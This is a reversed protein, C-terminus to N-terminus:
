NHGDDFATSEKFVISCGADTLDVWDVDAIEWMDGTFCIEVLEMDVFAEQVLGWDVEFEAIDQEYEGEINLELVQLVPFQEHGLPLCQVFDLAAANGLILSRLRPLSGIVGIWLSDMGTTVFACAFEHLNDLPLIDFSGWLLGAIDGNDASLKVRRQFGRTTLSIYSEMLPQRYPLYVKLSHPPFEGLSQVISRLLPRAHQLHYVQCFIDSAAVPRWSKFLQVLLACRPEVASVRSLSPLNLPFIEADATWDDFINHLVLQSLSPMSRLIDLFDEISIRRYPQSIHLFVLTKPFFPTSWFFECGTLHLRELPPYGNIFLNYNLVCSFIRLVKLHKAEFGQLTGIIRHQDSRKVVLSRTRHIVRSVLSVLSPSLSTFFLSLPVQTSHSLCAEVASIHTIDIVSWLRSDQFAISRWRKCVMTLDIVAIIKKGEPNGDRAWLFAEAVCEPPLRQTLDDPAVQLSFPLSNIELTHDNVSSLQVPQTVVIPAM